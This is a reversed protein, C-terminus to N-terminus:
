NGGKSEGSKVDDNSITRETKKVSAKLEGFRYSVSFGFRMNSFRMLSKKIFGAGETRSEYSNYKKFFDSASVSLTLRKKMFQKTVQFGYSTYSIDRGQLNIDPSMTFFQATIRWDHKFSQDAGVYVNGQWGYNRLEAGDSFHRYSCSFNSYLHTNKALNWSVYGGLGVKRTSGVNMYTTYIVQKGMPNPLGVIDNDNVLSSVEEISNNVFAYRLTLNLTLKSTVNNFGLDFSHKKENDLQPNGQSINTPDQDEIYPNLYYISPRYIRLNYGLRVSTEDSFKYGFSVSPVLDNFHKRFNDGRGLLYEVDQITHEYRLGLRGTVKKWKLGYGLYAAIIDNNHRYHSSNDEDYTYDATSETPRTYRDTNSKNDRMIYKAGMEVTHLKGIPTTYDLQFTQELTNEDGNNNQNEISNIFSQWDDVAWLGDNNTNMEKEAPESEIKYSLTLLRDKVSFSRQYDISGEISNWKGKYTGFTKYSYLKDGSLPSSAVYDGYSHNKTYNSWVSLSATVLRLTDIEYSAEFGGSYFYGRNVGKGYSWTNSASPDSADTATREDTQYGPLEEHHTYNYNASMTLKGRKVTGYVNGGVSTNRVKAGVTVSYGEVGQGMMIINLIGGVGEADYKPGPNTIVEIRKITNAPMSKLVESPNKSMMGNPKGNVYVKFNSDGNVKIKDQGDVTVLPVKRLMEIVTSSKSDPDDEINYELKDIDAKVLPKQAVVEVSSLSNKADTIPLTGLDATPKQATLTFERTIPNRGMSSITLIYSGEQPLTDNFRGSKDTVAMVTTKDPKEKATIKITAYPEGENTLSDVVTGKVMFKSKANQATGLFVTFLLLLLTTIAKRM